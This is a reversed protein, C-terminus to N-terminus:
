EHIGVAGNAIELIRRMALRERYLDRELATVQNTKLAVQDRLVEIESVQEEAKLDFHERWMDRWEDYDRSHSERTASWYSRLMPEMEPWDLVEPHAHLPRGLAIHLGEM